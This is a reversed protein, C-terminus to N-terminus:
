RQSPAAPEDGLFKQASPDGAKWARHVMTHEPLKKAVFSFVSWLMKHFWTEKWDPVGNGDIDTLKRDGM